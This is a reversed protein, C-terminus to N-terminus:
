QQKEKLKIKARLYKDRGQYDKLYERMAGDIDPSECLWRGYKDKRSASIKVPKGEIMQHLYQKAKLGEPREAGHLEPANYNKMRCIGTITVNLLETTKFKFTDGDIVRTVTATFDAAHVPTTLLLLTLLTLFTKM